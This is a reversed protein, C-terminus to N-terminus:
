AARLPPLNAAIAARQAQANAIDLTTDAGNAFRDRVLLVNRDADALSEETIAEAAQTGRLQMYDQALDSIAMLAVAHRAEIAAETNARQAEVARRVRGFLDLEWSSSLDNQYFDYEPPAGPAPVFLANVVPLAPRTRNYLSNADLTPLGQSAAIQRQARGQSVREAAAQLDLNQRALRQVLSSLEADGFRAWWAADVTGGFTPM